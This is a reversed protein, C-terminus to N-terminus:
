IRFILAIWLKLVEPARQSFYTRAGTEDSVDVELPTKFEKSFRVQSQVGWEELQHALNHGSYIM